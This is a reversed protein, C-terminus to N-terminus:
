KKHVHKMNLFDGEQSIHNLLSLHPSIWVLSFGTASHGLGVVRFM